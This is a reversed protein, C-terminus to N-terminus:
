LPEWARRGERRVVRGFGPRPFHYAAMVMAEREVWDLMAERTAAALDPDFDWITSWSPESVQAPHHIADALLLAQRRASTVLLSAHGGTHGPTPILTLGETLAAAPSVVDLVGLAALPAVVAEPDFGYAAYRQKVEPQRVWDWEAAAVLYRARPFTPTGSATLNWGYHDPHLHTLFILDIEDPRVGEAALAALLQGHDEAPNADAIPGDGTDVLVLRTPTRVLLPNMDPSWAHGTPFCRPHRERSPEWDSAPVTPFIEALDQVLATPSRDRLATVVMNGIAVSTGSM